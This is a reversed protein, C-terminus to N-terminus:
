FSPGGAVRNLHLWDAKQADSAAHQSLQIVRNVGVSAILRKVQQRRCAVRIKSTADLADDGQLTFNCSWAMCANM